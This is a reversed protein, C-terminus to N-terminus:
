SEAPYFNFLFKFIAELKKFDPGLIDFKPFATEAKNPPNLGSFGSTIFPSGGPTPIFFKAFKTLVALTALSNLLIILL